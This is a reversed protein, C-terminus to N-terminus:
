THLRTREIAQNWATRQKARLEASAAPRFTTDLKWMRAAGAIDCMGAGIGALMAAGRGTSEIETPREVAVDSVNAQTQMLLDNLAAGGDVRLRSLPRSADKAMAGVLDDVSFAIGELVARAVHARTTGRTLGSLLGRANQSWYPAGLGSLAPVFMVGDSSPVSRALAEIESANQIIGLGDRLWQVAAGAIFSSGELAFTTENGIKWAVTTVLGSESLTPTTGINTLVFAGTGYTCKADGPTFCAQGFLAAQQDGAIGSIPIGDPLFSLGRTAGVIEASGRVEPLVSEPVNFIRCLEADWAGKIIDFLLTRSANTVDTVFTDGGTLRNVLFADITGFALKGANAAARAGNVNDLIYAIKTASFYADIVLGTKKRVTPEVGDRKLQDCTEATRRCQWVIARHVSKKTARDWVLTTERQNTIGLAGVDSGEVGARALAERVSSEVSQWIQEPEHEVWGPNPFHQEFDHTARGRTEGEPTLVIATSGTTGQDIALLVKPM